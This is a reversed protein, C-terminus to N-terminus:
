FRRGAVLDVPEGARHVLHQVPERHRGAALAREHGVCGVFQAAREGRDAGLEFDPEGGGADVPGPQGPAPEGLLLPQLPQDVIQQQEGLQVLADGVGALGNHVEVLQDQALRAVQPETAVYPDVHGLDAASPYAAVRLPQSAHDAVQEVVRFPV